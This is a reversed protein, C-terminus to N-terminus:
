RNIRYNKWLSWIYYNGAIFKCLCYKAYVFQGILYAPLFSHKTVFPMLQVKEREDLFNYRANMYWIDKAYKGAQNLCFKYEEDTLIDKYDVKKQWSLFVDYFNRLNISKTLSGNSERSYYYLIENICTIKNCKQLVDIMVFADEFNQGVPFRIDKYIDAKYFKDWVSNLWIDMVLKQKIEGVSYENGSVTEIPIQQKGDTIYFNFILMDSKYTEMAVVLTAVANLKLYDDSDVFALYGNYSCIDLGMNRASSVGGNRKHIVRVRSDKNAYEDCIASSGDTSGDDVLIIELNKYTQNVISDVCRCLYKEVNYVPVIVTVLSDADNKKEVAVKYIM